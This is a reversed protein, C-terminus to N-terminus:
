NKNAISLNSPPGSTCSIVVPYNQHSPLFRARSSSFDFIDGISTARADTTGLSKLGFVHEVFKLISGFEYQTHSITGTPVYPSVVLMPVRFGLGGANDLFPPPEHDYFGGWDDWIIIVATSSWYKSQGVANVVQAVWSPGHDPRKTDNPHDSNPGSPVIWSVAALKNATIDNFINTEPSSVNTQWEPGNRVANIAEFANWKAGSGDVKIAPTYYKWSIGKADLLDRLTGTPYTLCPFPGQGFLYKGNTTLLSTVTNPPADCGWPSASPVDVISETSNLATAGAILDQHATFSDSGQTQFMHDAVAFQEALTWYPQIDAPKVYQYYYTGANKKSGSNFRELDFGDMKGADYDALYAKYNHGGDISELAHPTLPIVRGNHRVGTTAGDAGPFTAFLNDFSRNEQILIVIHEIKSTLREHAQSLATQDAAPPSLTGGGSGSCSTLVLSSGLLVIAFLQLRPRMFDNCGGLALACKKRM